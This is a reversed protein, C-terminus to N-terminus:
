TEFYGEKHDKENKEDGKTMAFANHYGTMYGYLLASTIATYMDGKSIDYIAMLESAKFDEIKEEEVLKNFTEAAEVVNM